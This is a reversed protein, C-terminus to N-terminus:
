PQPKVANPKRELYNVYELSGLRFRFPVSTIKELQLEKKCFFGLHNSYFSPTLGTNYLVILPQHTTISSDCKIKQQIIKSDKLPYDSRLRKEFKFNALTNYNVPPKICETRAQSFIEVNFFLILVVVFCFVRQAM